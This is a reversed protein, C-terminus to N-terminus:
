ADVLAPILMKKLYKRLAGASRAESPLVSFSFVARTVWDAAEAASVGDRLTGQIQDSRAESEIQRTLQERLAAANATLQATLGLAEESFFPAVDEREQILEVCVVVAEALRDGLSDLGRLREDLVELFGKAVRVMYAHLLAEKNPFYRYLTARACGAAEAIKGMRAGRIGDREFVGGAAELIRDVAFEQREENLWDTATRM